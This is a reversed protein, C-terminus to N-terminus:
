GVGPSRRAAAIQQEILGGLAPLDDAPLDIRSIDIKSGDPRTIRYSTATSRHAQTSAWPFVTLRRRRDGWVFGREFVWAREPEEDRTSWVGIVMILPLLAAVAFFGVVWGQGAGSNSLAVGIGGAILALVISCGIETRGNPLEDRGFTIRHAGLDAASSVVTAPVPETRVSRTPVHGSPPAVLPALVRPGAMAVGIALVIAAVAAPGLAVYTPLIAFFPMMFAFPQGVVSAYTPPRGTRAIRVGTIVGYWGFLVFAAIVALTWAMLRDTFPGPGQGQVVGGVLQFCAFGAGLVALVAFAAIRSGDTSPRPNSTMIPIVRNARSANPPIARIM